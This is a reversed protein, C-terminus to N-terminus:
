CDERETDDEEKITYLKCIIETLTELNESIKELCLEIGQLRKPVTEYFRQELQTMM